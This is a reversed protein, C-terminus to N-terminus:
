VSLIYLPLFLAIAICFEANMQRPTCPLGATVFLYLQRFADSGRLGNLEPICSIVCLPPNAAYLVTLLQYNGSAKLDFSTSM